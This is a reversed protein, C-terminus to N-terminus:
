GYKRYYYLIFMLHLTAIMVLNLILVDKCEVLLGVELAILLMAVQFSRVTADSWVRKDREDIVVKERGYWSKWLKFAIILLPIAIANVEPELVSVLLVIISATVLALWYKIPLNM